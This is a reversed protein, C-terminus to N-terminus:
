FKKLSIPWEPFLSIRSIPMRPIHTLPFLMRLVLVRPYAACGITHFKRVMKQENINPWKSFRYYKELNETM